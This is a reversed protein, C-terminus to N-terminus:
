ARAERQLTGKARRHARIQSLCLNRADTGALFERHWHVTREVAERTSWRPAWGLATRARSSDLRLAIAEPPGGDDTAAWTASAGWAGAALVAVEAVSVCGESDPGFNWASAHGPVGSHLGEAVQLYGCLPDLVHQWPRIADPHRVRSPRAQAFAALLDPLLRDRSWDGGGIVNGARVTAIAACPTNGFSSRYSEAVLEACAKSTSYPDGSGLRDSESFAHGNGPNAYCKDSTVVVVARVAMSRRCAELVNVSGMVNTAFTDVPDEYSARVLSQAALHFVVDPAHEAICRHPVDPDRIDALVSQMDEGVRAAEFLNPCSPPALAMGSVQAGLERLLLVLWSGKFGTHGTVLVRRGRWFDRNVGM